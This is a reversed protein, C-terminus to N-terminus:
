PLPVQVVEPWVWHPPRQFASFRPQYWRDNFVVTPETRSKEGLRQSPMSFNSIFCHGSADADQAM